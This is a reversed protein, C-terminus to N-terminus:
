RKWGLGPGVQREAVGCYLDEHLGYAPSAGSLARLLVGENERNLHTQQSTHRVVSRWWLQRPESKSSPGAQEAKHM